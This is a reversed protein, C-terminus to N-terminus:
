LPTHAKNSPVEGPFYISHYQGSHQKGAALLSAGDLGQSCNSSGGPLRRGVPTARLGDEVQWGLSGESM